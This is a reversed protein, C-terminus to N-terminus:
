KKAKKTGKKVRGSGEKASKNGRSSDGKSEEDVEIADKEINGNEDIRQVKIEKDHYTFYDPYIPEGGNYLKYTLDGNQFAWEVWSQHVKHIVNEPQQRYVDDKVLWRDVLKEIFLQGDTIQWKSSDGFKHEYETCGRKLLVKTTYGNNDVQKVVPLLTKDGRSNTYNRMNECVQNYRFLGKDLSDTYFYGGYLGCVSPRVEIGCKSPVDMQTQMHELAFLQELTQPRVVIKWCQQCKSPVFQEQQPLKPRIVNFIIQHWTGCDFDWKGKIHHWPTEDAVSVGPHYFKGDDRIKYGSNKLEPNLLDIINNAKWLEYATPERKVVEELQEKTVEGM